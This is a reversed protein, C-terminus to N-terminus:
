FLPVLDKQNTYQLNFDPLSSENTQLVWNDFFTPPITVSASTTTTSPATTDTAPAQASTASSSVPEIQFLVALVALQNTTVNCFNADVKYMFHMELDYTKGNITHEAPSHFHFETSRYLAYNNTVDKAILHSYDGIGKLTNPGLILHLLYM